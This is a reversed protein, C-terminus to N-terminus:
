RRILEQEKNGRFLSFKYLKYQQLAKPKIITIIPRVLLKIHKVLCLGCALRRFNGDGHMGTVGDGGERRGRFPATQQQM